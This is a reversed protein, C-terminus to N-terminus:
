RVKLKASSGVTCTGAVRKASRNGSPRQGGNDDGPEAATRGRDDGPEVASGGGNDDGPEAVIAGHDDTAHTAPDDAGHKAVATAPAVGVAALTLCLAISRTSIM